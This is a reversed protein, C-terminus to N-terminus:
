RFREVAFARPGLLGLGRQGVAPLALLDLAAQREPQLGRRRDGVAPDGREHAPFQRVERAFAACEQLTREDLVDVLDVVGLHREEADREVGSGGVPRAGPEARLSNAAGGVEKAGVVVLHTDIQALLQVHDVDAVHERNGAIQLLREVLDALRHRVDHLLAHHGDHEAAIVGDAERRDASQRRVHVAVDADDVEVSVDVRLFGVEVLPHVGRRPEVGGVDLVRGRGVQHLDADAAPLRRPRAHLHAPFAFEVTM